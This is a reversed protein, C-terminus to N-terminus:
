QADDLVKQLEEAIAGYHTPDSQSLVDEGSVKKFIAQVGQAGGQLDVVKMTLARMEDFSYTKKEVEDEVVEPETTPEEKVPQTKGPKLNKVQEPTLTPQPVAVQFGMLIALAAAKQDTIVEEADFEISIKV